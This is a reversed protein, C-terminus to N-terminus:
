FNDNNEDYGKIDLTGDSRFTFKFYLKGFIYDETELDFIIDGDKNFDGSGDLIFGFGIMWLNNKPLDELRNILSNRFNIANNKDLSNFLIKSSEDEIVSKLLNVYRRKYEEENYMDIYNVNDYISCIESYEGSKILKNFVNDIFILFLEKNIKDDNEYYMSVYKEVSDIIPIFKMKAVGVGVNEDESEIEIDNYKLGYVLIRAHEKGLERYTDLIHRITSELARYLKAPSGHVNICTNDSRNRINYKFSKSYLEMNTNNNYKIIKKKGFHYLFM